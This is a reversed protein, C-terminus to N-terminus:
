MFPPMSSTSSAAALIFASAAYHVVPEELDLDDGRRAGQEPALGAGEDGRAVVALDADQRAVGREHRQEPRAHHADRRRAEM